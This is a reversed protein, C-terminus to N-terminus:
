ATRASPRGALARKEDAAELLVSLTEKACKEWSFVQARSVGKLRLTSRLAKDRLVGGILAAIEETNTPDFYSLVGGSVEPLCSTNAAITPVGCAMAEVMPLCFGEHISPIVSLHAGKLLAALEQGPLPGTIVVRGSKRARECIAEHGWSFCGTLVLQLGPHRSAAIQFADILRTLNKREHMLGHHFIYPSRIAFTSRLRALVQPDPPDLNFLQRNYGPYTVVIREAPLRFIRIIDRKSNESDTLIRNSLRAAATLLVRVLVQIHLRDTPANIPITDHVTTVTPTPGWPIVQPLPCFLVDASAQHAALSSAGLRWLWDRDLWTTEVPAFGVGSPVKSVRGATGPPVLPKFVLDERSMSAFEKLLSEAYVGIGGYRLKDSLSWTDIAIVPLRKM